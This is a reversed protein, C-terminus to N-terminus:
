GYLCWRAGLTRTKGLQPVPVSIVTPQLMVHNNHATPSYLTLPNDANVGVCKTFSFNKWLGSITAQLGPSNENTVAMKKGQAKKRLGSARAPASPRIKSGKEQESAHIRSLGSVQHLVPLLLHVCSQRHLTLVYRATIFEGVKITSVKTRTPTSRVEGMVDM